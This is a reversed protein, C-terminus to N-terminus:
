SSNVGRNLRSGLAAIVFLGITPIWELRRIWEREAHASPDEFTLYSFILLSSLAVWPAIQLWRLGSEGPKPALFPLLMIGLLIYWPHLVTTFLVYVTMPIAFARITQLPSGVRRARIFVVVMAVGVIPVLIGRALDFSEEYGRDFIEPQRSIWRALWAFIGSNFRFTRGFTIASGFAGSTAGEELGFGSVAGVILVPTVTLAAYLIRQRWNWLWFLIPVFLAVLPRSLTGAALAIVGLEM